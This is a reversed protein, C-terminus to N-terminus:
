QKVMSVSFDFKSKDYGKNLTELKVNLLNREQMLSILKDIDKCHEIEYELFRIENELRGIKDHDKEELTVYREHSDFLKSKKRDM